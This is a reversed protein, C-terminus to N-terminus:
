GVRKVKEVLGRRDSDNSHSYVDLTMVTSSHGVQEAVAVPNVGERIRQSIYSHRLDYLRGNEVKAEKCVVNWKSGGYVDSKRRVLDFVYEKSDYGKLSKVKLLEDWTWRPIEAKRMRRTKSLEVSVIFQVRNEDVVSFDEWKIHYIEKPRAGSSMMLTFFFYFQRWLLSRKKDQSIKRLVKTLASLEAESYERERRHYKPTQGRKFFSFPNFDLKDDSIAFNMLAKFTTLWSRKSNETLMKGTRASPNRTINLYTDRCGEKTLDTLRLDGLEKLLVELRFKENQYTTKDENSHLYSEILSSLTNGGLKMARLVQDKFEIAKREAERREDTKLGKWFKQGNIFFQCAYGGKKGRIFKIKVVM